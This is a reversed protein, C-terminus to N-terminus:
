PRSLAADSLTEFYNNKMFSAACSVPRAGGPVLIRDLAEPSATARYPEAAAHLSRFAWGDKTLRSLTAEFLSRELLGEYYDHICFLQYGPTLCELLRDPVDAHPIGAQVMEHLCPLSIPLQLVDYTRNGITPFFPASGRTDSSYRIGRRSLEDFMAGNVRWNPAGWTRAPRQATSEFNAFALEMQERTREDEMDYVEDAWLAHDYGHVGIEHGRNEIEHVLKPFDPGVHQDLMRSRLYALGLHRAVNFVNMSRVRRRFRANTARKSHRHLTDPGMVIYFTARVDYRDFLDLLHPVGRRLGEHFDVDVRLHILKDTPM